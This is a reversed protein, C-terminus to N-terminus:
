YLAELEPVCHELAPWLRAAVDALLVHASALALLEGSTALEEAL